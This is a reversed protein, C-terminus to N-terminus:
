RGSILALELVLGFTNEAASTDGEINIARLICVLAEDGEVNNGTDNGRAFPLM